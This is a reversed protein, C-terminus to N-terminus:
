SMPSAISEGRLFQGVCRAAILARAEAIERAAGAIHPTLTVNPLTRLRSDAPLPEEPSVDVVAGALRGEALADCM